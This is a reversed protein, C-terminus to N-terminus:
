LLTVDTLFYWTGGEGEPGKFERKIKGSRMLTDVVHDLKQTDIDRWVISMLKNEHMVKAEKIIQYVTDVEATIESKGIAKFANGMIREVQAIATIAEEIHHWHITLESSCAAARIMALKMIYTPKRSYWGSFSKDECIRAGSEDEDYSDYWEIWKTECDPTLVYEGAMRSIKYLDDTLLTKLEKEKETLKPIAIKKKKRDAYIFLMRSTLGGGIASAPLSNALSDPTTASLLNLWPNIIINSGSHKTRSTWESKCDFLDTLATLMKTNEKKQGLFSEFEGSIINLSSHHYPKGDIVLEEVDLGCKQVDDIMAEKTTSDAGVIIEPITKIFKTGYTIAQTKRAVGPEAVLVIYLNTNYTLRGLRLKVKRRLAAAIVSYAVWIDFLKAPETNKQLEVYSDLWNKVNRSM